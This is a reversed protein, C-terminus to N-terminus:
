YLMLAGMLGLGLAVKGGEKRALRALADGAGSTVNIPGTDAPNNFNSPVVTDPVLNEDDPSAPGPSPTPSRLSPPLGQGHTVDIKFHQGHQCQEGEYNGSFFYTLGERLLPVAITMAVKSFEPEGASWDITDDDEANNYDCHKYTTENYTRVVSHNKDTNFVIHCSSYRRM